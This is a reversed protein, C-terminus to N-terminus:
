RFQDLLTLDGLRIRTHLRHVFLPEHLQRRGVQRVHALIAPHGKMMAIAANTDLLYPM